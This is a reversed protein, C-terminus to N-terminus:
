PATPRTEPERGTIGGTNMLLNVMIKRADSPTYGRLGYLPYGVLGACLDERSFIFAPRGEEYAAMLRPVRRQEAPLSSATSRRFRVRTVDYPFRYINSARPLHFTKPYLSKSLRELAAAFTEDGGSADAIISGGGQLYNSLNRREEDNINLDGTGTLYAAACRTPDLKGFGVDMVQLARNTKAKLVDALHTMAMPEPNWNGPHIIRYLPLSVPPSSSTQQEAPIADGRIATSMDTVYLYYNAFLNFLPRNDESMGMAMALSIERPAHVALLRVGNSVGLLPQAPEIAYQLNYLPHNKPIERFRYEPFMKQYEKHMDLTFNGNNCAAESLITGGRWVFARLRRTQERTFVVPGAGSIYLIRGENMNVTNNDIDLIQWGMPKEYSYELWGALNAADTPRSNWEGRYQVKNILIPSHGSTLFVMAYCTSEIRDAYGWGGDARQRRLLEPTGDAYWNSAGIYKRGTITGVQQLCFMWYYYEEQNKRPHRSVAMNDALWQLGRDVAEYNEPSECRIIEDRRMHAFCHSMTASGAATMAGYTNSRWRNGVKYLFYGWGGDPQQQDFWHQEVLKWYPLPIEIGREAAAQIGFAALHSHVNDYESEKGEASRATYGGYQNMASMLWRADSALQAQARNDKLNALAAMRFAVPRTGILPTYLLWDISRALKEHEEPDTGVKTLAYATMATRLGFLHKKPPYERVCMGDEAIHALLFDCGREIAERIHKERSTSGRPTGTEARLPGAAACIALMIAVGNKAM